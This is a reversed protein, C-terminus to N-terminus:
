KDPDKKNKIKKKYAMMMFIFGTVSLFYFVFDIWWNFALENVYVAFLFIIALFTVTLGIILLTKDSLRKIKDIM